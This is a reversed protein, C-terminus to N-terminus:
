RARWAHGVEFMRSCRHSARTARVLHRHGHRLRSALRSLDGLEVDPSLTIGALM